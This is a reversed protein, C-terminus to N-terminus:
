PASGRKVLALFARWDEPHFELVPDDPRASGRVLVRDAALAVEV